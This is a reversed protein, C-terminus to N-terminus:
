QIDVLIGAFVCRRQLSTTVVNNSRQTNATITSANSYGNLKLLGIKCFVSLRFTLTNQASLVFESSRVVRTLEASLRCKLSNQASLLVASSRVVRTLETLNRFVLLQRFYTDENYDESSPQLSYYCYNYVVNELVTTALYKRRNSIIM